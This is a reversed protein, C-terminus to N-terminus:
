GEELRLDKGDTDGLPRGQKKFIERRSIQNSLFYIWARYPSRLNTRWDSVRRMVSGYTNFAQRARYCGETLEDATMGRPHYTAEGYRFNPDLWWRDYILRDEHKLRDFLPAGPTPTLPNFNALFFKNRIAFEVAEDFADPTDHDYGFVFTGYIMIGADRFTRISTEYDGFKLNWGKKMLKLNEPNLSEFGILASMCGSKAMLKVLSPDKAIDISVQCSWRINLPTLARFLDRASRPNAFINDDVLFIHKRGLREIEAVVEHVPRQRLNAGYFARISCFDCNFKCGRGFQVLGIPAYRKGAFISRDPEIGDLSPFTDQRYHKRLCGRRADAVVQPWVSEADGQVVSDAFGLAENPLFTPHYGGMVVRVGRRRYEAAIQYARRATYTEVTLAVLDTPEDFPISALREDHFATEVDGPTLRKLIAFCLPEMADSSRTAYLNPRIFTIKM